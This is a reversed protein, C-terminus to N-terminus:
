VHRVHIKVKPPSSFNIAYIGHASPLGKDVDVDVIKLFMILERWSPCMLLPLVKMLQVEMASLSWLMSRKSIKKASMRDSSQFDMKLHLTNYMNDKFKIFICSTIWHTLTNKIFSLINSETYHFHPSTHTLDGITCITRSFFLKQITIFLNILQPM